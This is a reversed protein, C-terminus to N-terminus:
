RQRGGTPHENLPDVADETVVGVVAQEQPLVLIRTRQSGTHEVVLLRAIQGGRIVGQEDGDVSGTGFQICRGSLHASNVVSGLRGIAHWPRPPIDSALAVQQEARCRDVAFQVIGQLSAATLHVLFGIGEEGDVPGRALLPPDVAAPIDQVHRNGDAVVPHEEDVTRDRRGLALRKQLLVLAIQHIQRGVLSAAHLLLEFREVDAQRDAQVRVRALQEPRLRDIHGVAAPDPDAATLQRQDVVVPVHQDAPGIGIAVVPLLKQRALEAAATQDNQISRIALKAPRRIGVIAAPRDDDARLDDGLRPRKVQVGALLLHALVWQGALLLRPLEAAGAVVATRDGARRVHQKEAAAIRAVVVQVVVTSRAM